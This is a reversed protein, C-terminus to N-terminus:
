NSFFIKASSLNYYLLDFEQQFTHIRRETLALTQQLKVDDSSGIEKRQDAIKEKDMAYKVKVARFWHLSNFDDIQDLLKLIYALGMVFGDDTFLADQRNKKGMRDKMSLMHEVFNITLPPVILYFTKLHVNKPGRLFPALTDVLLRFYETGESWQRWLHEIEAQLNAASTCTASLLGESTALESLTLSDREEGTPLFASAMSCTHICGSRMMRVYGMANGIHSVLLRFTDLYSEGSETVGLKRIGKNFADAREYAYMQGLRERNDRFWKQDKVLRSKIREDYLFQSLVYIKKKLFQYTFNVTTNVVGIGHTRLSNAIHRINITNLHKNGSTREIFVQNNLNYVYQAVFVHINRMIDLVDCGQELIQTPLHDAVTVLNMKLGALRRMEGYTRWDHLSITTLNYFMNSLYAEVSRKLSVYRDAVKVVEVALLAKSNVLQSGRVFPNVADVQLNSHFDLRLGTEIQACLRNIVEGTFSKMVAETFQEQCTFEITQVEDVAGACKDVGDFTALIRQHDVGYDFYQKLYSRFLSQHWFLFSTDCVRDLTEQLDVIITLRALIRALKQVYEINLSTANAEFVSLAIKAITIRTRTAPGYLCRETIQFAALSDLTKENYNDRSLTKRAANVLYVGQYEFHQIISNVSEVIFSRLQLFVERIAILFELLKGISMLTSKQMPLQVIVHLNTVCKILHSMQGALRVGATFLNARSRIQEIKVENKAVKYETMMQLVWSLTRFTFSNVEKSLNSTKGTLFIQRVKGADSVFKEQGKLLTAAHRRIFVEPCWVINSILTIGCFKNSIELLQKFCKQDLNGFFTHYFICMVSVRIVCGCDSLESLDQPYKVVDSLVRKIHAQMQTAFRGMVKPLVSEKVKACRQLASDVLRGQFLEDLEGIMQMLGNMDTASFEKFQQANVCVTTMQKKYPGWFQKLRLGAFIEDFIYISIILDCMKDFVTYLCTSNQSNGLCKNDDFFASFERVTLELVDSCRQLFQRIKFLFDLVGSVKKNILNVPTDEKMEVVDEDYYLLNLQLSESEVRLCDIENCLFAFVIINKNLVKNDSEVLQFLSINENEGSYGYYIPMNCKTFIKEGEPATQDNELSTLLRNHTELFKGFQRLQQEGCINEAAKGVNRPSDM